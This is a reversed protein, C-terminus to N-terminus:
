SLVRSGPRVRAMLYEHQDALIRRGSLIFHEARCPRYPVYLLPTGAEDPTRCAKKMNCYQHALVVNEWVDRGGRARPFVHDRTADRAAVHEGCYACIGQDRRYLLLNGKGLPLEEKFHSVMRESKALAIVAPVALLSRAGDHQYGGRLVAVEDGLSWAVKGAALYYAAHNIDLWHFPNGAIDLALVQHM